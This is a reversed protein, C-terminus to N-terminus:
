RQGMRSQLAMALNLHEQIVPIAGAILDRLRSDKAQTKAANLLALAHQHDTVEGNIYAADFAPGAPLARLRVMAAEDSRRMERTISASDSSVFQPDAALARDQGQLRTHDMIVREAFARVEPSSARQRALIGAGIEDTNVVDLASVIRADGGLNSLMTGPDTVAGSPTGSVGTGLSAVSRGTTAPSNAVGTPPLMGGRTTDVSGAPAVVGTNTPAVPEATTGVTAATTPSSSGGMSGTGTGSMCAGLAGLAVLATTSAFMKTTFMHRM